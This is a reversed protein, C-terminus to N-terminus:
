PLRWSPAIKGCHTWDRTGRPHTELDGDFGARRNRDMSEQQSKIRAMSGAQHLVCRQLRNPCIHGHPKGTFLPRVSGAFNRNSSFQFMNRNLPINVLGEKHTNQTFMLGCDKDMLIDQTYHVTPRCLNFCVLNPSGRKRYLAWSMSTKKKRTSLNRQNVIM